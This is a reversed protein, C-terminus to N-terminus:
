LEDLIQQRKADFEDQSIQGRDVMEQLRTLRDSPSHHQGQSQSPAQGQNPVQGQGMTKNIALQRFQERAAARAAPDGSMM